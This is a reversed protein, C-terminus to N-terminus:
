WRARWSQLNMSSSPIPTASGRVNNLEGLVVRTTLEVVAGASLRAATGSDRPAFFTDAGPELRLAAYAKADRSYRKTARAVHAAPHVLEM